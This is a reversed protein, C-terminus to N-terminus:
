FNNNAHAPNLPTADITKAFLERIPTFLGCYTAPNSRPTRGIPSQDISIVKDLFEVGEIKDFQGVEYKTRMLKNSCAPDSKPYYQCRETCYGWGRYNTREPDYNNCDNCTWYAGM